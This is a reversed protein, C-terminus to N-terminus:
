IDLGSLVAPVGAVEPLSLVRHDRLLLAVSHSARYLWTDVDRLQSLLVLKTHTLQVRRRADVIQSKKSGIYLLQVADPGSYLGTAPSKPFMLSLYRGRAWKESPVADFAGALNCAHISSVLSSRLSVADAYRSLFVDLDDSIQKTTKM